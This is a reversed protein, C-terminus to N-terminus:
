DCHYLFGNGFSPNTTELEMMTVRNSATDKPRVRIDKSQFGVIRSDVM